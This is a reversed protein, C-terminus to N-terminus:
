FTSTTTGGQQWHSSVKNPREGLVESLWWRSIKLEVGFIGMVEFWSTNCIKHLPRDDAHGGGRMLLAASSTVATIAAATTVCSESSAPPLEIASMLTVAPHLKPFRCLHGPSHSKMPAVPLIKRLFSSPPDLDM